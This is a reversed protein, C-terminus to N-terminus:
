AAPGAGAAGSVDRCNVHADASRGCTSSPCPGAATPQSLSLILISPGCLSCLTCCLHHSSAYATAFAGVVQQRLYQVVYRSKSDAQLKGLLDAAIAADPRSQSVPPKGLVQATCRQWSRNPGLSQLMDWPSVNPTCHAHARSSTTACALWSRTSSRM